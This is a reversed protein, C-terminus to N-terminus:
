KDQKYEEVRKENETLKDLKVVFKEIITPPKQDKSPRGRSRKETVIKEVILKIDLLSNKHKKLFAGIEKEADPECSFPEKFSKKVDDVIVQKEKEISKKVKSEADDGKVVVLRFENGYVTKVFGQANYRDRICM